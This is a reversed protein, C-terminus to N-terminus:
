RAEPNVPYVPKPGAPDPEVQLRPETAVIQAGAARTAEGTTSYHAFAAPQMKPKNWPGHDVILLSLVGLVAIIIAVVLPIGGRRSETRKLRDNAM